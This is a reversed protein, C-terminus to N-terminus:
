NKTKIKKDEVIKKLFNSNGFNRHFFANLSIISKFSVGENIM